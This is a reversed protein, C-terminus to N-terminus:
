LHACIAAVGDLLRPGPRELLDPDIQYLRHGRVARLRPWHRWYAQWDTERSLSIVVTPNAQILSEASIEPAPLFADAFVNKGGCVALAENMWSRKNVTLLTHAGIQLFVEAKPQDAYRRKLRRLREEFQQASVEARESVGMLCGLQRMIRPVDSLKSPDSTYVPVGQKKLVAVQREFTQGWRVVLDPHLGVLRELDLGAYTGVIPRKKAADPYDAGDIVGVVKEGAGIAFSTETLDPSLSVVRQVPRALRILVQTDDTIVCNARAFSICTLMLSLFLLSRFHMLQPTVLM